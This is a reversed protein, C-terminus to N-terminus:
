NMNVDQAGWMEPPVIWMTHLFLSLASSDLASIILSDPFLTLDYIVELQAIISNKEMCVLNICIMCFM